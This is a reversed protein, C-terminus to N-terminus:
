AWAGCRGESGRNSWRSHRRERRRCRWRPERRERIGVSQAARCKRQRTHTCRCQMCKHTRLGEAAGVPGDVQYTPVFRTHLVAAGDSVGVVEGVKSGVRRGVCDVTTGVDLGVDTGDIVGVIAGDADGSWLSPRATPVHPGVVLGECTGLMAGIGVSIGDAGGVREGCASCLWTGVSGGVSIEVDGGEIAGSLSTVCISSQM